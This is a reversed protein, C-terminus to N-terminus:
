ASCTSCETVHPCENGTEGLVCQRFTKLSSRRACILPKQLDIAVQPHFMIECIKLRWESPYCNCGPASRTACVQGMNGQILQHAFFEADTVKRKGVALLVELQQHSKANSLAMLKIENGNWVTTKNTLHYYM